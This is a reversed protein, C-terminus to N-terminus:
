SKDRPPITYKPGDGDKGVQATPNYRDYESEKEREGQSGDNRAGGRRGRERLRDKREEEGERM